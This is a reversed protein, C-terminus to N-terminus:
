AMGPVVGTTKLASLSIREAPAMGRSRDFAMSTKIPEENMTQKHFSVLLALASIATGLILGSLATVKIVGLAIAFGFVSLAAKMVRLIANKKTDSFTKVIDSHPREGQHILAKEVRDADVVDQLSTGLDCADHGFTMMDAMKRLPVVAQATSKACSALMSAVYGVMAAGSIKKDFSEVLVRNKQQSSLTQNQSVGTPDAISTKPKKYASLNSRIVEGFGMATWGGNCLKSFADLAPVPSYNMRSLIENVLKGLQDGLKLGRFTGASSSFYNEIHSAASDKAAPNLKREYSLNGVTAFGKQTATPNIAQVVVM